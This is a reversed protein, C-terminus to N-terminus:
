IEGVKRISTGRGQSKEARHPLDAPEHYRQNLVSIAQEPDLPKGGFQKFLAYAGRGIESPQGNQDHAQPIKELMRRFAREKDDNKAVKRSIYHYLKLIMNHNGQGYEIDKLVKNSSRKAAHIISKGTNVINKSLIDHLRADSVSTLFTRLKEINHTSLKNEPTILKMRQFINHAVDDSYALQYLRTIFQKKNQRANIIGKFSALEDAELEQLNKVFNKHQEPLSAFWEEYEQAGAQRTHKPLDNAYTQERASDSYFQRMASITSKRTPLYGNHPDLLNAQALADRAVIRAKTDKIDGRGNQEQSDLIKDLYRYNHYQNLVGALWKPSINFEPDVENKIDMRIKQFLSNFQQEMKDTIPTTLDEFLLQIKM